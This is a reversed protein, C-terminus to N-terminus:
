ILNKIEEMAEDFKAIDKGGATAMHPNGGGGGNVIKAVNKILDGARLNKQKILDDTIVCVFSIKGEDITGLLAVTEKSKNRIQDGLEKLVAMNSNELKHSIVKIGKITEAKDLINQISGSLIQSSMNEVDKELRRHNELLEEVKPVLQIESM